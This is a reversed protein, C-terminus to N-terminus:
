RTLGMADLSAHGLQRRLDALTGSLMPDDILNRMEYPDLELDISVVTTHM